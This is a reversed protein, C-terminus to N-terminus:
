IFIIKNIHEIGAHGCNNVEERTLARLLERLGQEGLGGM